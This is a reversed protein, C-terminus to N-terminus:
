PLRRRVRPLEKQEEKTPKQPKRDAPKEEQVVVQKPASKMQGAAKDRIRKAIEELQAPEMKKGEWELSIKDNEFRPIINFYIHPVRQGATAGNNQLVNVGKAEVGQFAAAELVKILKMYAADLEDPLESLFQYHGKPIAVIHGSSAPNIDLFAIFNGDEYVTTAPIKGSAINCFLCQQPGGSTSAAHEVLEREEPELKELVKAVIQDRPTGKALEEQALKNLKAQLSALKEETESM